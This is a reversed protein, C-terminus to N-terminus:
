LLCHLTVESLRDRFLRDMWLVVGFGDIGIRVRMKNPSFLPIIMGELKHTM